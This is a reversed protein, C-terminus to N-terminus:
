FAAAETCTHSRWLLKFTCCMRYSALFGGGTTVLGVLLFVTPLSLFDALLGAGLAGGVYGLDRWFRYYSLGHARQLPPLNEAIVTLFNPYVLGTGLGLLVLAGAVMWTGGPLVLLGLGGAQLWMGISILQ